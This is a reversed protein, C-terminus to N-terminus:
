KIKSLEYISDPLLQISNGDITFFYQITIDKTSGFASSIKNEISPHISLQIAKVESIKDIANNLENISNEQTEIVKKLTKTEVVKNVYMFSLVMIMAFVLIVYIGKHNMILKKIKSNM